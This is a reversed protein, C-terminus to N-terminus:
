WRWCYVNYLSKTRGIGVAGDSRKGAWLVSQNRRDMVEETKCLDLLQEESLLASEIQSENRNGGM